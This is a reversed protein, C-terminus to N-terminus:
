RGPRIQTTWPVQLSACERVEDPLEGCPTWTLTPAAATAPSAPLISATAVLFSGAIATLSRYRTMLPENEPNDTRGPRPRRGNRRAGSGTAGHVHGRFVPTSPRLTARWLCCKTTNPGPGTIPCPLPDLPALQHDDDIFLWEALTCRVQDDIVNRAQAPTM